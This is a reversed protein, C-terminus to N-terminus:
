ERTPEELEYVVRVTDARMWTTTLELAPGAPGDRNLSEVLWSPEITDLQLHWAVEAPPIDLSARSWSRVPSMDFRDWLLAFLSIGDSVTEALGPVLHAPLRTTSHGAVAEDITVRRVIVVVDEGAVLDLRGAVEDDAAEIGVDLLRNSVTVGSRAFTATGSPPVHAGIVYDIRRNVFTGSGRVRRVVYRQELEQLAARATPRSVGHTAMLAHESPVRAGVPATALESGLVSAIELYSVDRPM